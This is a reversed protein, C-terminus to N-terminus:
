EYYVSKMNVKEPRLKFFCLVPNSNQTYHDLQEISPTYRLDPIQSREQINQIVDKVKMITSPNIISIFYDQFATTPFIYAVNLPNVTEIQNFILKNKNIKNYFVQYFEDQSMDNIGFTIYQSTQSHRGFGRVYGNRILVDDYEDVNLGEVKSRDITRSGFDLIYQPVTGNEIVQFITDSHWPHFSILGNNNMIGFHMKSTYNDEFARDLLGGTYKFDGNPDIVLLRTFYGNFHGPPNGFKRNSPENYLIINGENSIAFADYRIPLKVEGLFKGEFNYRIIKSPYGHLLLIQGDSESVEIDYPQTYEGPGKGLRHIHNLYRGERDFIFISQAQFRDLVVINDKTMVIEDVNGIVSESNSELVVFFCTDLLSDISVKSSPKLEGIPIMEGPSSSFATGDTYSRKHVATWVALILFGCLLFVYKIRM